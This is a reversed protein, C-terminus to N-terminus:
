RSTVADGDDPGAPAAQGHVGLYTLRLGDWSYSAGCRGCRANAVRTGTVAPGQHLPQNVIM